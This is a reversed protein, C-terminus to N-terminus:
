NSLCSLLFIIDVQGGQAFNGVSETKIVTIGSYSVQGSVDKKPYADGSISLVLNCYNSSCIFDYFKIVFLYSSYPINLKEYVPNLISVM